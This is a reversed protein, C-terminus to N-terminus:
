DTVTPDFIPSIYDNIACDAVAADPLASTGNQTCPGLFVGEPNRVFPPVPNEIVGKVFDQPQRPEWDRQCVMLNNWTRRLQSGKFKAGCRYCRANWDGLKLYDARGM